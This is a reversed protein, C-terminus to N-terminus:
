TQQTPNIQRYGCFRGILVQSLATPRSEGCSKFIIIEQREMGDSATKQGVVIKEMSKILLECDLQEM